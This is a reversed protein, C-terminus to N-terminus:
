FFREIGRFVDLGGDIQASDVGGDGELFDRFGERAHFEDAGAGGRMTDEGPGGRLSDDGPGGSLRDAGFYGFLRDSDPGGGVYDDGRDAELLDDGQGGSLRDIGSGRRNDGLVILHDDGGRGNLFDDGRWPSLFNAEADGLLRDAFSTGIVGEIDALTKRDGGGRPRAFGLRLDAFVGHYVRPSFDLYDKGPGGDVVDEGLGPRIRDDGAGASITDNGGGSRIDDDRAGGTLNDAGGGGSLLSGFPPDGGVLTDAGPGGKLAGGCDSCEILVDNGTGGLIVIAAVENSTASATDDLDGLRISVTEVDHPCVVEHDDVQACGPGAAIVAGTDTITDPGFTESVELNNVEDPAARYILQDGDILVTAGFAPSPLAFCLVAGLALFLRVSV